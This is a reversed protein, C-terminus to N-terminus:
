KEVETYRDTRATRIRDIVVSLLLLGFATIGGFVLLREFLNGVETWVHWLGYGSVTILWVVTLLWGLKRTGGSVPTRPREDWQDDNPQVFETNMAAERIGRLEELLTRCTDCDELHIRIKQGAAQTLEGDLYGTILKQDFSTPCKDAM